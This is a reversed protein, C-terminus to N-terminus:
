TMHIDLNQKLVKSYHDNMQIPPNSDPSWLKDNNVNKQVYMNWWDIIPFTKIHLRHQNWILKLINQQCINPIHIYVQFSKAKCFWWRYHFRNFECCILLYQHWALLSNLQFEEFSCDFQQAIVQHFFPTLWKESLMTLIIYQDRYTRRSM